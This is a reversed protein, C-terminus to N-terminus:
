CVEEYAANEASYTLNIVFCGLQIVCHQELFLSGERENVSCPHQLNVVLRDRPTQRFTDNNFFNPVSILARLKRRAPKCM